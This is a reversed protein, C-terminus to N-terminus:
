PLLRKPKYGIMVVGAEDQTVVAQGLTRTIETLSIIPAEGIGGQVQFYGIATLEVSDVEYEMVAVYNGDLFDETLLKRILFSNSPGKVYHLEETAVATTGERWYTVVPVDDPLTDPNVSVNLHSGRSFRGWYTQMMDTVKPLRCHRSHHLGM